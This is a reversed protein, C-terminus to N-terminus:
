ALEPKHGSVLLCQGMSNKGMHLREEVRRSTEKDIQHSLQKWALYKGLHRRFGELCEVTVDAIRVKHFGGALVCDRYEDVTGVPRELFRMREWLSLNTANADLYDFCVLQGGPRLLRFSEELLKRTSGRHGPGKNWTVVDFSVPPHKIKSLKMSLFRVGPCKKQCAKLSKRDFTIGTVDGPPFYKLLHRTTAGLGCGIDVITGKKDPVFALLEDMLNECATKADRIGDKWFGIQRFGSGGYFQDIIKDLFAEGSEEAPDSPRSSSTMSLPIEEPSASIEVLHPRRAGLWIELGGKPNNEYNWGAVRKVAVEPAFPNAMGVFLGHPTSVMNRIGMNYYNGFGDLTVPIWRSGDRSRWLDCGGFKSIIKEVYADTLIKRVNEPLRDDLKSYRLFLTWVSNGLYLWGEHDCMSWAYGSFPNGLGPGLGSLPVKLGDPTLRPEGVVLDWSDDANIRLVEPEAPGVKNETDLGGEQIASGVYLCGGFPQLTMAVQNFKGRYAGHSIIKKWKFPPTGEAETKWIQFGEHVNLTGAYLYGNFSAMQFVSLNNPDGFHPECAWQWDSQAPDSSVLVMMFGAVNPQRREQGVAPSTFLRGKFSVLARLGRPKPDPIGMGPESVLDFNVGDVSRLMNTQPTQHSGWTPVYLAPEADHPGQFPTMARFGISVPVEFGDIGKVMPSVFVRQWDDARPNYRWIEARLDISFLGDPIRVPWIEGLSEPDTEARWRGRYALNARTTGVYLHDQFWTMSHPYANYPSGFGNSAIKQFDKRKLGVSTFIQTEAPQM